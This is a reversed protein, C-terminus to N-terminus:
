ATPRGIRSAPPGPPGVTLEALTLLSALRQTRHGHGVGILADAIFAAVADGRQRIVPGVLEARERRLHRALDDISEIAAIRVVRHTRDDDSTGSTSLDSSCVDSSWDIIRM